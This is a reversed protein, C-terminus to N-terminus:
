EPCMIRSFNNRLVIFYAPQNLGRGNSHIGDKECKHYHSDPLIKTFGGIVTVPFSCLQEIDPPIGLWQVSCGIGVHPLHQEIIGM